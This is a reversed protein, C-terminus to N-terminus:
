YIIFYKLSTLLCFLVHDFSPNSSLINSVQLRSIQSYYLLRFCQVAIVVVNM